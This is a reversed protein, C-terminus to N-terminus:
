EKLKIKISRSSFGNNEYTEVFCEKICKFKEVEKILQNAGVRVTYKREVDFQIHKNLFDKLKDDDWNIDIIIERSGHWYDTITERQVSDLVVEDNGVKFTWISVGIKLKMDMYKKNRDDKTTGKLENVFGLLSEKSVYFPDSIKGNTATKVNIAKRM